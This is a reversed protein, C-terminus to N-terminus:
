RVYDLLLMVVDALLAIQYSRTARSRRASLVASDASLILATQTRLTDMTVTGSNTLVQRRVADFGLTQYTVIANELLKLRKALVRLLATIRAQQERDNLTLVRLTDVITSLANRATFYPELYTDEGSILFGRQGAEADSALSLLTTAATAVRQAHTESAVDNRLQQLNLFGITQM